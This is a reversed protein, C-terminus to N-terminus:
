QSRQILLRWRWTTATGMVMRVIVQLLYRLRVHRLLLMLLWRLRLVVRTHDATTTLRSAAAHAPSSAIALGTSQGISLALARRHRGGRRGADGNAITISLVIPAVRGLMLGYLVLVMRTLRLLLAQQRHGLVFAEQRTGGVLQVHRLLFRRFENGVLVGLHVLTRRPRGRTRRRVVTSVVVAASATM